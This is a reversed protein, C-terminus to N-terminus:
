SKLSDIKKQIEDAIKDHNYKEAITLAKKLSDIAQPINGSQSYIDSLTDLVRIQKKSYFFHDKEGLKLADNFEELAKDYKADAFLLMGMQVHTDPINPDLSVATQADKYAEQMNNMNEMAASRIIWAIASKGNIKLLTDSLNVAAQPIKEEIYRSSISLTFQELRYEVSLLAPNDPIISLGTMCDKMQEFTYTTSNTLLLYTSAKHIKGFQSIWKNKQEETFGDWDIHNYVSNSSVERIFENFVSGGAWEIKTSFEVFPSYDSNIKYSKVFKKIDEKDGIYCSMIDMSNNINILSLSERVGKKNLEDEMHKPSFYQPQKSGVVVFYYSPNPTMYWITVYPFVDMMTGIISNLVDVTEVNHTPIWSLFLGNDNLHDRANEYYEKTYLSANDAISRPHISDNVIADYKIDTMHIYNKADMYIMNIEDNLRDGLNIHKFYKLSFQVIEPAIEVCDARQLNHLAMCATSEGSGFGVSLVNKANKNLLVGFHGLMKQDGRWFYTDGAIRGGSSYLYLTDDDTNRLLSITTTTGEKVKILKLDKMLEPNSDVVVDFLNSPMMIAVVTFIGAAVVLAVRAPKLSQRAFVFFMIGAIWIGALGLLTISFQLGVLPILVFGVVIGGIVAGITNAAYATGTSKGVKHVQNTWAQLAIPFGIGMIIAPISFLFVSQILPKALFTSFPIINNTLEIQQNIWPMLRSAWLIMFPLYFIGCLGLLFLTIAFGAAPIKLTKVMGSGIATGIVNGLLYITLVSSFVYTYGSLLHIISRMWLLEYGISILGSMFFAAILVYFKGDPKGPIIEATSVAKDEAVEFNTTQPIRSLCWGGFAVIINLGAAIYLSGMVGFSRIMFFGALFCGLAAGLTNLAYLRGVLHGAEKEFATVFRGLLPLTSGMLMSPVLLIAASVVVQVIMLQSNDPHYSHYFGVYINDAAKLAFPIALASITVLSELLAYLHLRRSIRDCYRSMILAGLALGGMFMSVVISSAYVTNGLTLKLLRVWIVEDILSCAGSLFYILMIWNVGAHGSIIKDINDIKEQDVISGKHKDLAM